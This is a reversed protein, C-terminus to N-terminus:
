RVLKKGGIGQNIILNIARATSTRRHLIAGRLCPCDKKGFENAASASHFVLDRSHFSEFTSLISNGFCQRVAQFVHRFVTHYGDTVVYIGNQAVDDHFTCVQYDFKKDPHYYGPFIDNMIKTVDYRVCERISCWGDYYCNGDVLQYPCRAIAIPNFGIENSVISWKGERQNCYRRIDCISYADKIWTNNPLHRHGKFCYRHYWGKCVQCIDPANFVFKDHCYFCAIQFEDTSTPYFKRIIGFDGNLHVCTAYRTAYYDDGFNNGFNLEMVMQNVLETELLDDGFPNQISEM